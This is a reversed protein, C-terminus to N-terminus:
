FDSTALILESTDISSNPYYNIAYPLVNTSLPLCQLVKERPDDCNQAHKVILIRPCWKHTRTIWEQNMREYSHQLLGSSVSGWIEIPFNNAHCSVNLLFLYFWTRLLAWNIHLVGPDMSPGIRKLMKMLSMRLILENGSIVFLVVM